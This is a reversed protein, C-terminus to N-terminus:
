EPAIMRVDPSGFRFLAGRDGIRRCIEAVVGPRDEKRRAVVALERWTDTVEVPVRLLALRLRPGPRLARAALELDAIYKHAREHGYGDFVQYVVLARGFKAAAGCAAAIRHLMQYVVDDVDALLAPPGACLPRILGLWYELVAARNASKRSWERVIAYRRERWKGEIAIAGDSHQVFIDTMSAKGRGKGGVITPHEYCVAVDKFVPGGDIAALTSLATDRDAWWALLPVTSRTPKLDAEAVREVGACIHKHTM